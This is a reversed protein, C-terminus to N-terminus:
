SESRSEEKANKLKERELCERAREAYHSLMEARGVLEQLFHAVKVRAEPTLGEGDVYRGAVRQSLVDLNLIAKDISEFSETVLRLTRSSLYPTINSM